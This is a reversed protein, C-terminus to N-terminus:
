RCADRCIRRCEEPSNGATRCGNICQQCESPGWPPWRDSASVYTYAFLALFACTLAGAIATILKM